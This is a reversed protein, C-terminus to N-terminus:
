AETSSDKRNRKTLVKIVQYNNKSFSNAKDDKCKRDPQMQCKRMTIKHCITRTINPIVLLRNGDAHLNLMLEWPQKGYM